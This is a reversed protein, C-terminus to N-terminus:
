DSEAAVFSGAAVADIDAAVDDFAIDAVSDIDAIEVLLVRKTEDEADVAVDVDGDVDDGIELPMSLSHADSAGDSHGEIEAYDSPAVADHFADDDVVVVDLADGDAAIREFDSFTM